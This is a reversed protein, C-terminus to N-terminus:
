HELKQGLVSGGVLFAIGASLGAAVCTEPGLHGKSAVFTAMAVVPTGMVTGLMTADAFIEALKPYHEKFSEISMVSEKEPQENL